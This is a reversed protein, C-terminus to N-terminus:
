LGLASLGKGGTIPLLFRLVAVLRSQEDGVFREVLSSPLREPLVPERFFGRMARWFGSEAFDRLWWRRWRVLTRESVDLHDCLRELRERTLGHRLVSLLLVWVGLYVRRGFFRMSPPTLRRRCGDKSCCFSFRIARRHLGGCPHRFYNASHLTGGCFPCNGTRARQSLDQDIAFLFEHFSSDYLYNHSLPSSRENQTLLLLLARLTAKDLKGLPKRKDWQKNQVPFRPTARM